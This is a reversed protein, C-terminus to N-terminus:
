CQEPRMNQARLGYLTMLESAMSSEGRVDKIGARRVRVPRGSNAQYVMTLIDRRIKLAKEQVGARPRARLM